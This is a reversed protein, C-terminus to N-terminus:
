RRRRKRVAAITKQSMTSTYIRVFTTHGKGESDRDQWGDLRLLMGGGGGHDRMLWLLGQRALVRARARTWGGAALFRDSLQSLRM